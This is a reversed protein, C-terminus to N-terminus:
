TISLKFLQMDYECRYKKLRERMLYFVSIQRVLFQINEIMNCRLFHSACNTESAVFFNASNYGTTM